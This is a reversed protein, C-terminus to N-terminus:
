SLRGHVDAVGSVCCLRQTGRVIKLVLKLLFVGYLERVVSLLPEDWLTPPRPPVLPATTIRLPHITYCIRSYKISLM